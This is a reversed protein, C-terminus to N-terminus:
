CYKMKKSVPSVLFCTKEISCHSFFCNVGMYGHFSPWLANQVMCQNKQNNELNAGYRVLSGQVVCGLDEKAHLQLHM